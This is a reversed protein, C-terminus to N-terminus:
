KFPWVDSSGLMRDLKKAEADIIAKTKQLAPTKADQGNILESLYQTELKILNGIQAVIDKHGKLKFNIKKGMLKASVAKKITNSFKEIAARKMEEDNQDEISGSEEGEKVKHPHGASSDKNKVNGTAGGVRGAGDQHSMDLLQHEGEEMREPRDLTGARFGNRRSGVNSVNTFTSLDIIDSDYNPDADVTGMEYEDYHKRM